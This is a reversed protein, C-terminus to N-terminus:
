VVALSTPKVSCFFYKVNKFSALIFHNKGYCLCLKIDSSGLKLVLPSKYCQGLLTKQVKVGVFIVFGSATNKIM